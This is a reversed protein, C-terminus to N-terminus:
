IVKWTGEEPHGQPLFRFWAYACSDTAGYIFSPRKSLVLVQPKRTQWFTHRKQSELFSLRLLFIVEPALALSKELFEMALSFPPNTIIRDFEVGESDWTLFDQPCIVEQAVSNLKVEDEGRLEIATWNAPIEKIIAGSAGCPELLMESPDITIHKLLSQITEKPTEYLDSARRASGRGTSSM